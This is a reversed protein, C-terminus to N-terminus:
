RALGPVEACAIRAGGLAQGNLRCARTGAIREVTTSPGDYVRGQGAIVVFFLVFAIILNVTVGALITALRKGPTANRFTRPEDAPDVEEMNTMGIIRVYGGAPIAKVGYETEGRHTSWLTPGFGVFFRSAKMGFMRATVFHGGEHLTVSVLLAVIFGVAPVSHKL